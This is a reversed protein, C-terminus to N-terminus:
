LRTGRQYASRLRTALADVAPVPPRVERRRVPPRPPEIDSPPDTPQEVYTLTALHVRADQPSLGASWCVQRFEASAQGLTPRVEPEYAVMASIVPELTAPVGSLDPSTGPDTIAHIMAPLNPREYPYHQALAFVLTAGLSYVDAAATLDRPNSIQEPSCTVPTGIFQNSRTLEQDSGLLAVLGFDIVKPGDAALMINAPKLDRHWLDAAHIAGLAETLLDGLAAGMDGPLPGRADVYQRLTLGRIYAMALWAPEEGPESAAVLSAVRSGQVTRMAGIENEFRARLEGDAAASRKSIVKVAVQDGDPTIGFYVTGMAGEGLRGHLEIGGITRPDSPM